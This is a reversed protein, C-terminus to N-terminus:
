ENRTVILTTDQSQTLTLPGLTWVTTMAQKSVRSDARSLETNWKVEISSEQAELRARPSAPDASAPQAISARPTGKVTAVGEDNSAFVWSTTIQM